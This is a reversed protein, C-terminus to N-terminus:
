FINAMISPSAKKTLKFCYLAAQLQEQITADKFRSMLAKNLKHILCFTACFNGSLM